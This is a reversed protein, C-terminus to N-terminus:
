DFRLSITLVGKEYSASIAGGMKETLTKAISLGLGTSKRASSVTYVRDFLRGM